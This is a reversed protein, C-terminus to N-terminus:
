GPRENNRNIRINVIGDIVAVDEVQWWPYILEGGQPIVYGDCSVEIRGDHIVKGTNDDLITAEGALLLMVIFKNRWMTKQHLYENYSRGNMESREIDKVCDQAVDFRSKTWGDLHQGAPRQCLIYSYWDCDVDVVCSDVM